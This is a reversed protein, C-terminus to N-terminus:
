KELLGLEGSPQLFKKLNKLVQESGLELEWALLDENRSSVSLSELWIREREKKTYIFIVRLQCITFYALQKQLSDLFGKIVDHFKPWLDNCQQSMMWFLGTLENTPGELRPIIACGPDEEWQKLLYLLMTAADIEDHISDIIVQVSEWDNFLDGIKLTVENINVIEDDTDSEESEKYGSSHNETVNDFHIATDSEEGEKYGSSHNETVNDFHIATDSEESEKYGSSHNETVNDFHIAMDSEESEKYGSSHNETVNDFHIAM